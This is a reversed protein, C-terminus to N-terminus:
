RRRLGIVRLRGTAPDDALHAELPPLTRKGRWVTIRAIVYGGRTPGPRLGSVCTRGGPAATAWATWGTPRGRYDFLEVQYRTAARSGLQHTLLLDDFCLRGPQALQLRDLPAVQNFWYRAIRQQRALLTSVVYATSDAHSYGGAEVIAQLQAPTFRAVLRAAWFGDFRDADDVAPYPTRTTFRSPDFRDAEFLGVGPRDARRIGEWPRWWTGLSLLSGAAVSLDTSRAFGTDPRRDVYAGAGLATRFDWLYHAVYHRAPDAADAVWLDRTTAEGLDVHGVWAAVVGLGRVSRRDEHDIIDNPDGARVGEGAWGGLDIGDPGRRAVARLPAAPDLFLEGLLQDLVARSLPRRHGRGDAVAAGDGVTLQGRRVTVIRDDPVNWGCAWFIRQAIVDAATELEPYGPRDFLLTYARGSADRISLSLSGGTRAGTVTWPLHAQPGDADGPGRRLEDASLPRAGIRNEFWTSDPLEDMANVDRARHPDRVDMARTLARVYFADLDDLHPRRIPAPPPSPVDARDSVRTVPPQNVFRLAGIPSASACGALATVCAFLLRKM